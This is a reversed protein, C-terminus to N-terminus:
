LIEGKDPLNAMAPLMGTQALYLTAHRIADLAHGKGGVHWLGLKKLRASPFAKKKDPSFEQIAEVPYGLDRCAQEVAGMTRLAWSAEQSKEGTRTTIRFSEMVVRMPLHGVVNKEVDLEYKRYREKFWPITEDPSTEVSELLRIEHVGNEDDRYREMVAQGTLKGPDIAIVREIRLM